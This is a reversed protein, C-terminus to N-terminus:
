DRLEYADLAIGASIALSRSSNRVLAGFGFFLAAVVVMALASGIAGFVAIAREGTTLEDSSNEVAVFAGVAVIVAGIMSLYGFLDLTAARAEGRCAIRRSEFLYTDRDSYGQITAPQTPASGPRPPADLPVQPTATTVTLDNRPSTSDRQASRAILLVGLLVVLGAAILYIM